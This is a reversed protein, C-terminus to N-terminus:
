PMYLGGNVDITIGTIYSSLGSALFVIAGAIESAEGRRLMPCNPNPRRDELKLGGGDTLCQGPAVTNVTVGDEAVQKAFHKSLSMAAGKTTVYHAGGHHGGDRGSVSGVNIVRGYKQKQMIPLIERCTIFQSTLNISLVKNWEDVSIEKYDHPISIGANNVLIDIRGFKDMVTKVMARISDEGTLDVKVAMARGDGYEADISKANEASGAGDIDALVVSCGYGALMRATAVGIGRKSGAGTIIAVKGTFDMCDMNKGMNKRRREKMM